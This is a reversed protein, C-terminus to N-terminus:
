KKGKLIKKGIKNTIVHHPFSIKKLLNYFEKYGKPLIKSHSSIAHEILKYVNSHKIFKGKYMIEGKDNIKVVSSMKKLLMYALQRNSKDLNKWASKKVSGKKKM